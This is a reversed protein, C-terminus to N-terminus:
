PLPVFIPVAWAKVQAALALIRSRALRDKSRELGPQVKVAVARLEPSRGEGYTGALAAGLTADDLIAGTGDLLRGQEDMGLCLPLTTHAIVLRVRTGAPPCIRSNVEFRMNTAADPFPSGLLADAFDNNTALTRNVDLVFVERKRPKGDEGTETYTAFQSGVYVFPLAPYAQDSIRDRVLSSADIVLERGQDDQWRVTLRVPVGRAPLGSGEIAGVGDPLGMVEICAAKVLQGQNTDLRLISEHTKGTNLCAFVELGDLPGQDLQIVGDLVVARIRGVGPGLAVVESLAQAVQPTPKALAPLAAVPDDVGWALIAVCCLIMLRM